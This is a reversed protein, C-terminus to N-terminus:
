HLKQLIQFAEGNMAQVTAAAVPAAAAASTLGLGAPGIISAVAITEIVPLPNHVINEVTHAVPQIITNNAWSAVGGM